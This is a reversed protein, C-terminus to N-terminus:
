RCHEIDVVMSIKQYGHNCLNHIIMIVRHLSVTFQMFLSAGLIKKKPNYNLPFCFLVFAITSIREYIPPNYRAFNTIISKYNLAHDFVRNCLFLLLSLVYINKLISHTCTKCSSHSFNYLIYYNTLISINSSTLCICYLVLCSNVSWFWSWVCWMNTTTITTATTTMMMMLLLLPLM